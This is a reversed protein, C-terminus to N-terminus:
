RGRSITMLCLQKNNERSYSRRIIKKSRSCRKISRILKINRMNRRSLLILMNRRKQPKRFEKSGKGQPMGGEKNLLGRRNLPLEGKSLLLGKSKKKSPKKKILKNKGKSQLSSKRKNTVINCRLTISKNSNKGKNVSESLLTKIFLM